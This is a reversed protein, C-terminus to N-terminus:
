CAKNMKLTQEVFEDMPVPQSFYYGQLYDCSIEKMAGAMEETEIGQANLVEAALEFATHICGKAHPSGNIMLVKM